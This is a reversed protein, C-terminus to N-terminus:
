EMALVLVEEIFDTKAQTYAERDNKFENSLDVKLSEYERAKDPHSILYDRFALRKKFEPNSREILYLHHTRHEPSPKCFWHMLEPKYPYYCYDIKSLLEICSKTKELSDVGVMIDIIPKASLGSVSTSGVHHIGGTILSGITQQLLEKEVNFKEVWNPDYAVIHVEEDKSM